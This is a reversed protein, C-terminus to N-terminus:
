DISRVCRVYYPYRKDYNNPKGTHFSVFWAYDNHSPPTSSSWYISPVADPFFRNNIAPNHHMRDVISMLENIDPLRWDKHDALTLKECFVIAEEWNRKGGELKQWMLGTAEDLITWDGKDVLEAAGAASSLIFLLLGYLLAVRNFFVVMM